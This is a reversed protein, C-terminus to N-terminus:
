WWPPGWGLSRGLGLGIGNVTGKGKGISGLVSPAISRLTETGVSRKNRLAVERINDRELNGSSHTSVSNDGSSARTPTRENDMDTDSMTSFYHDTSISTRMYRHSRSNRRMETWIKRAPDVEETYPANPLGAFPGVTNDTWKGNVLSSSMASDIGGSITHNSPKVTEESSGGVHHGSRTYPPIPNRGNSLKRLVDRAKEPSFHTQVLEILPNPEFPANMTRSARPSWVSDPDHRKIVATAETQLRTTHSSMGASILAPSKHNQFGSHKYALRVTLYPCLSHSLKTELDAMVEDSSSERGRPSPLPALNTLRVKALVLFTEKARIEKSGHLNGIIESIVCGQGPLLDIRM